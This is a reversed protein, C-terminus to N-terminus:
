HAITMTTTDTDTDTSQLRTHVDFKEMLVWIVQISLITNDNKMQIVNFM